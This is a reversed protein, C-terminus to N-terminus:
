LRHLKRQTATSPSPMQQNWTPIRQTPNSTYMSHTLLLQATRLLASFVHHESASVHLQLRGTNSPKFVLEKDCQHLDPQKPQLGITLGITPQVQTLLAICCHM